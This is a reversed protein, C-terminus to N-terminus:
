LINHFPENLMDFISSFTKIIVKWAFAMSTISFMDAIPQPHINQIQM